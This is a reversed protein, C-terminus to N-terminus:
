PSQSALYREQQCAQLDKGLKLSPVIGQRQESLHSTLNDRAVTNSRVVKPNRLILCVM